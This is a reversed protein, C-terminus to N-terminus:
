RTKAQARLAADRVARARPHDGGALVQDACKLADAFRGATLFAAARVALAERDSQDERLSDATFRLVDQLQNRRSVREFLRDDLELARDYARLADAKKERFLSLTQGRVWYTSPDNPALEMAKDLDALVPKLSDQGSQTGSDRRTQHALSLARQEYGRSYIPNLTVCVSFESAAALYNQNAQLIRGYMFHNWYNDGGLLSARRLLREATAAPTTYDFDGPGLIALVRAVPDNGHKALFVHLVGHFFLDTEGELDAVTRRDGPKAKRTATPSLFSLLSASAGKELLAATRSPPVQGATEMARAAALAELAKEGAQKPSDSTSTKKLAGLLRQQVRMAALLLLLRHAEVKVIRLRDGKLM